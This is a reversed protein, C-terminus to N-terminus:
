PLGPIREAVVLPYGKEEMSKVNAPLKEDADSGARVSAVVIDPELESELASWDSKMNECHGCGVMHVMLMMPKSGIASLAKQHQTNEDM